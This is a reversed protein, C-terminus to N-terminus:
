VIAMGMDMQNAPNVKNAVMSVAIATATAAACYM